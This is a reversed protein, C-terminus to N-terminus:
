RSSSSGGGATSVRTTVGTDRSVWATCTASETGSAVNVPMCHTTHSAIALLTAACSASTGHARGTFQHHIRAPKTTNTVGGPRIPMATNQARM